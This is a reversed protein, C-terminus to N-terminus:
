VPAWIGQYPYTVRPKHILTTLKFVSDITYGSISVTMTSPVGNAFAVTLSVNGPTLGRVIPSAGATPSGYLTMNQVAALFAASPTATASDYPVLSAFRAGQVVASELRNYQLFTFGLQFTGAFTALLVGSGLAFEIIAAGRRSRRLKLRKGRSHRM